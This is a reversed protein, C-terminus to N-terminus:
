EDFQKKKEDYEVRNVRSQEKYYDKQSDPM